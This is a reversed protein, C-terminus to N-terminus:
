ELSSRVSGLVFILNASVGLSLNFNLCRVMVCQNKLERGTTLDQTFRQSGNVLFQCRSIETVQPSGLRLKTASTLDAIASQDRLIILAHSVAKNRSQIQFNITSSTIIAEQYVYSVVCVM